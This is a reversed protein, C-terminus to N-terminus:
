KKEGLFYRKLREWFTIKKHIRIPTDPAVREIATQREPEDGVQLTFILLRRLITQRERWRLFVSLAQDKKEGFAEQIQEKLHELSEKIQVVTWGKRKALAPIDLQQGYVQELLELEEEPLREFFDQVETDFSNFDTESKQIDCIEEYHVFGEKPTVGSQWFMCSYLYSSLTINSPLEWKERRLKQAMDTVVKQWLAEIAADEWDHHFLMYYAPTYYDRYLRSLIRDEGKSLGHLIRIDPLLVRKKM